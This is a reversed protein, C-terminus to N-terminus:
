LFALRGDCAVGTTLLGGFVIVLGWATEDHLASGGCTDVEPVLMSLAVIGREVGVDTCDCPLRPVKIVSSSYSLLKRATCVSITAFDAVVVRVVILSYMYHTSSFSSTGLVAVGVIKILVV